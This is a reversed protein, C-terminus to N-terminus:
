RSFSYSSEALPQALSNSLTEQLHFTGTDNLPGITTLHDQSTNAPQHTRRRWGGIKLDLNLAGSLILGSCVRPRLGPLRIPQIIEIATEFVIEGVGGPMMRQIRHNETDAVYVSGGPGLPM